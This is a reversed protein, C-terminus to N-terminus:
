SSSSAFPGNGQWLEGEAIRRRLLGAHVNPDNPNSYLPLVSPVDAWRHDRLAASISNFGDSGYFDKGLNYGFSILASQQNSNMASWYPISTTLTSVTAEMDHALYAEAQPETVSDGSQVGVGNPYVTTGYGITMVGTGDDYANAVFAEFSKVINVAQQPVGTTSTGDLRQQLLAISSPGILDPEDLGNDAKFRAWAAQTLPGVVGDAAVGYGLASLATQLETVQDATLQELATASSISTLAVLKM